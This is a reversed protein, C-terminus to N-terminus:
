DYCLLRITPDYRYCHIIPAKSKRKVSQLRRSTFPIIKLTYSKASIFVNRHLDQILSELIRMRDKWLAM